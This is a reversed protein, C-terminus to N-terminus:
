DERFVDGYVYRWIRVKGRHKKISDLQYGYNIVMM